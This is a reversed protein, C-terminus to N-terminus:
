QWHNWVPKVSGEWTFGEPFTIEQGDWHFEFRDLKMTRMLMDRLEFEMFYTGAPLPIEEMNLARFMRKIESRAYSNASDEGPYLLRYERGAVIALPEVSRNALESNEDYGVWVGYIEYHSVKTWGDELTTRTKGCRLVAYETNIQVPVNYLRANGSYQLIDTCCLTKEIAPWRGIGAPWWLMEGDDTILVDCDTMGLRTMEGSQEDRRYLRYYLSDLNNATEGFYIAPIGEPTMRKEITVQLEEITDIQPLKEAQEYVWAPADWPTIADLFALYAPEPYNFAYLNLEEDSSDAPYCLSLGRSDSRGDGRVIYVVADTLARTFDDLMRNDMIKMMEPDGIVNGLDRMHQQGDGYEESGFLNKLIPKAMGPLDRLARGAERFFRSTAEVLPGIKTLDTVSWTLLSRSMEDSGGAYRVDTMDCIQRGLWEGDMTPHDILAQLWVGTASGRGPVTEQSAVMWHTNGSIAWATEISAMLCADIVVTDLYVGGDELAQKLEFLYMIDDSFLEDFFMGTRAGGGHDWLILAYKEAPCVRAGWRIFDALTEPECMSQLPLTEMLRIGDFLREEEEGLVPFYNVQWRQLVEASVDIGLEQTHWEKAGGTEILINVKGIDRLMKSMDIEEDEYFAKMNYPYSVYMIEELCDSAYGYKSELDSGCFYFMVTWEAQETDAAAPINEAMCSVATLSAPLALFLMIILFRKM